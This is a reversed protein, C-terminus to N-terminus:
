AEGQRCSSRIACHVRFLGEILAPSRSTIGTRMVVEVSERLGLSDVGDIRREYGNM